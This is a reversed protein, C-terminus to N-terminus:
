KVTRDYYVVNPAHDPRLPVEEQEGAEGQVM